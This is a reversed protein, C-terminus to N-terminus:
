ARGAGSSPCSPEAPVRDAQPERRRRRGRGGRRAIERVVTSARAPACTSWSSARAPRPRADSRRDHRVGQRREVRGAAEDGAPRGAAPRHRGRCRPRHVAAGARRLRAREAAQRRGAHLGPRQVRVAGAPRHDPRPFPHLARRKRAVQPRGGARAGSAGEDRPDLRAAVPHRHDAGERDDGVLRDRAGGRRGRDADAARRRLPEEASRPGKPPADVTPGASGLLRDLQEREKALAAREKGIEMEELKRLSRLRMNLIAEAQRDTLTFEAILVPKPEDEGRIIAIM